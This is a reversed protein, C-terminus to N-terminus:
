DEQNYNRYYPAYIPRTPVSLLRLANMLDYRNVVISNGDQIITIFKEDDTLEVIVDEHDKFTIGVSNIM